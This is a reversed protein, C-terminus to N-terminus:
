TLLRIGVWPTGIESTSLSTVAEGVNVMATVAIEVTQWGNQSWEGYEFLPFLTPPIFLTSRLIFQSAQNSLTHTVLTFLHM